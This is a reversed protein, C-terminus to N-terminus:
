RELMDIRKGRDWFCCCGCDIGANCVGSQVSWRIEGLSLMSSRWGVGGSGEGVDVRCYRM